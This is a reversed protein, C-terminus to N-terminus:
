IKRQRGLELNQGHREIVPGGVVHGVKILKSGMHSEAPYWIFNSTPREGESQCACGTLPKSANWWVGYVVESIKGFMEKGM